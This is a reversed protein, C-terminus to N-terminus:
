GIVTTCNDLRLRENPVTRICIACTHKTSCRACRHSLTKLINIPNWGGPLLHHLCFCNRHNHYGNCGYPCRSYQRSRSYLWCMRTCFTSRNLSEPKGLAHGFTLVGPYTGSKARTCASRLVVSTMLNSCIRPCEGGLFALLNRAKPWTSSSSDM